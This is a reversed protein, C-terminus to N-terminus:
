QKGKEAADILFVQIAKITEPTIDVLMESLDSCGAAALRQYWNSIHNLRAYAAANRRESIDDLALEWNAVMETEQDLLESGLTSKEWDRCEPTKRRDKKM